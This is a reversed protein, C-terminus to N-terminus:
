SVDVQLAIIDQVLILNFVVLTFRIICCGPYSAICGLLVCRHASSVQWGMRLDSKLESSLPLQLWWCLCPAVGCFAVRITNVV